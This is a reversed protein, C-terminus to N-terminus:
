TEKAEVNGVTNREEELVSEHGLYVFDIEFSFNFAKSVLSLTKNVINAV